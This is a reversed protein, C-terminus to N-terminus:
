QRKGRPSAEGRADANYSSGFFILATRSAHVPNEVCADVHAVEISDPSPRPPCQPNARVELACDHRRAIASPPSIAPPLRWASYRCTGTSASMSGPTSWTRRTGFVLAAMPASASISTRGHRCTPIPPIAAFDELDDFSRWYQVNMVERWRVWTHVGLLGKAPNKALAALMPPMASAVPMWKRFAWLRNIRMGILFVVFPENIDATFRGPFIKPM